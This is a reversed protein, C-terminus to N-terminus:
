EAKAFYIAMMSDEGLDVEISISGDDNLVLRGTPEGDKTLAMAGDAFAAEMVEPAGDGSDITAKGPEVVMSMAMGATEAPMIMGMMSVNTAKWSGLFIDESEAALVAPLAIPEIKERGFVMISEADMELRLKGDQLKLEITDSDTTIAVGSETADWTGKQQDGAEAGYSSTVVATGDANLEITIDMGMAAPNISLEGMIGENLYWAGSLDEALASACLVMILVVLVSFLKKM